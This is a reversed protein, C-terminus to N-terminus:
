CLLKCSAAGHANNLLSPSQFSGISVVCHAKEVALQAQAPNACDLDPEVNFLLYAKLSKELM